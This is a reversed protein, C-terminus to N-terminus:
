RDSHKSNRISHQLADIISPRTDESNMHIVNVPLAVVQALLENQTRILDAMKRNGRREIIKGILVFLGSIIAALVVPNGFASTGVTAFFWILGDNSNFSTLFMQIKWTLYFFCFECRRWIKRLQPSFRSAFSARTITPFRTPNSSM